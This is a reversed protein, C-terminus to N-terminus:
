VEEKPEVEILVHARRKRILVARGRWAPRIRKLTIGKDVKATRIVLDDHDVALEGARRAKDEYSAVASRLVRLLLPGFKRKRNFKLIAEAETVSKGRILDLVPKLKKPSAKLNRIYARGTM